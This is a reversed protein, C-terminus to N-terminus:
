KKAKNKKVYTFIGIGLAIDFMAIALLMASKMSFTNPVGEIIEEASVRGIFLLMVSMLFALYRIKKM